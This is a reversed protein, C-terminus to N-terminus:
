GAFLDPWALVTMETLGSIAWSFVELFYREINGDSIKKFFLSTNHDHLLVLLQLLRCGSAPFNQM